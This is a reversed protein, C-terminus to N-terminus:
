NMRPESLEHPPLPETPVKGSAVAVDVLMGHMVLDILTSLATGAAEDTPSLAVTGFMSALLTRAVEFSDLGHRVAGNKKAREVATALRAHLPSLANTQRPRRIQAAILERRVDGQVAQMANKMHEFVTRLTESLPADDTLILSDAILHETRDSLEFLVHDKTPFHFYFTGRAVGAKKVICEIRAAAVGASFFEELAAQFITERTQQRQRERNTLNSGVDM